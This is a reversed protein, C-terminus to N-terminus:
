HKRKGGLLYYNLVPYRQILRIGWLCISIILVTEVIVWIFSLTDFTRCIRELVWINIYTSIIYIGLTNRGLNQLFTFIHKPIAVSVNVWCSYLYRFTMIVFLSGILGIAYRYIDCWLQDIVIGGTRLISHGTTYIYSDKNYFLLLITFTLGLFVYTIIQFVNKKSSFVSEHEKWLYGIVFYPFVFKYVGLNYSDPLFFSVIFVILYILLSDNSFRHILSVVCSSWFVAWLFWLNTFVVRLIGMISVVDGGQFKQAVYLAVNFISWSLIPVVLGNFRRKINSVTGKAISFAYLYGSILMFLPMHFSYIFKFIPHEFYNENNFNVEGLGYQVCHGLVVLLIAFGKLGDVCLNRCMSM